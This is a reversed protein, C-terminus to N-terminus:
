LTVKLLGEAFQHLGKEIKKKQKDSIYASKSKYQRMLSPNIGIRKAFHSVNIFDFENFVSPMDYKYKVELNRLEAPLKRESDKYSEVILRYAELFDEKAQQVSDGAGMLRNNIDPTTIGFSEDDRKEILAIIKM